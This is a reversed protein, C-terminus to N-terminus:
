FVYEDRTVRLITNLIDECKGISVHIAEKMATRCIALQDEIPKAEDSGEKVLGM